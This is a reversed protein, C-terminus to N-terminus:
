YQHYWALTPAQAALLDCRVHLRNEGCDVFREAVSGAPDNVGPRVFDIALGISVDSSRVPVRLISTRNPDRPPVAIALESVPRSAFRVWPVHGDQALMIEVDAIGAFLEEDGNARLHFYIPPHFTLHPNVVSRLEEPSHPVLYRLSVRNYANWLLQRAHFRPSIFTRDALGVSVSGNPQLSIWGIMHQSTNQVAQVILVM